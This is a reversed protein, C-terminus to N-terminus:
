YELWSPQKGPAVSRGAAILATMLSDPMFAISATMGFPLFLFYALAIIGGDRMSLDKALLWIALGGALWFLSAYVRGVWINEGILHYTLATLSEMIPPEVLGEAKLQAAAIDRQWQPATPLHAYYLGRAVLLSHYQRVMYFDNPLDTLDYLRIGLAGIFLVAVLAMILWPKSFLKPADNNEM